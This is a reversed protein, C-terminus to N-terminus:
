LGIRRALDSTFRNEPDIQRKFERFQELKPYGQAATAPSMHSDKAFYLRGNHDTVIADLETLLANLGPRNPLDLSLTFGPKPFSLWGPGQEGFKKLVALFSAAKANSIRNLVLEIAKAAETGVVFQYQVFGAKGYMRNWNRLRDLPYFYSDYHTFCERRRGQNWYYWNNFAKISFPSLLWSPFFKPVSPGPDNHVRNRNQISLPLEAEDAHHGVMLVGRGVRDGEALTDIWAVSYEDDWVPDALLSFVESLSRAAVRREAMYTSKIPLLKLSVTDIIGTLGMGGATANFLDDGPEVDHVQNSADILRFHTVFNSFTGVKHHNKGHVDAALCGGLSCFKTGPTVPIFWGRPVIAQLIDDLTAGAEATIVGADEDMHIVRDLRETLLVHGASNTAADGYSRGQGRAIISDGYPRLDAAREPRILLNPSSPTGGWGSLDAVRKVALNRLKEPTSHPNKHDELTM